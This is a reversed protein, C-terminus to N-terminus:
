GIVISDLRYISCNIAYYKYDTWYELLEQRNLWIDDVPAVEADADADSMDYNIELASQILELLGDVSSEIDAYPGGVIQPVYDGYEIRDCDQWIIVYVRNACM